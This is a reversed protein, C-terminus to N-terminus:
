GPGPGEEHADARRRYRRLFHEEAGTALPRAPRGPDPELGRPRLRLHPEADAAAGPRPIGPVPLSDEGKYYRVCPRLLAPPAGRTSGAPEAARKAPCRIGGRGSPRPM